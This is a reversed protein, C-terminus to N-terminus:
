RSKKELIAKIRRVGAGSSEEKVIKFEGLDGTRDAHPGACIEKSVSGISYVNVEPPYKDRFFALAGFAIADEYAMKEKNVPLNDKIAQNVLTETKKIEEGTMKAPHSFDFRLRESTIDSGMQRVHGGLVRRLSAHLLHTATHLRGAEESAEKGVGGFKKEAGSRSIEQHKKLEKEFAEAIQNKFPLRVRGDKEMEEFSLEL